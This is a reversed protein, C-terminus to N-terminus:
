NNKAPYEKNKQLLNIQELEISNAIAQANRSLGLTSEKVEENENDEENNLQM